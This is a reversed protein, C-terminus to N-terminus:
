DRRKWLGEVWHWNILFTAVWFQSCLDFTFCCQLDSGWFTIFIIILLTVSILAHLKSIICWLWSIKSSNNTNHGPRPRRMRLKNGLGSPGSCKPFLVLWVWIILAKFTVVKKVSFVKGAMGGEVRNYRRYWKYFVCSWSLLVGKFIVLEWLKASNMHLHSLMETRSSQKGKFAPFTRCFLFVKVVSGASYM